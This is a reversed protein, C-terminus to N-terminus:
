TAMPCFVIAKASQSNTRARLRGGGGPTQALGGPHGTEARHPGREQLGRRSDGGRPPYPDERLIRISAEGYTRLIKESLHLPVDYQRLFFCSRRSKARARGARSSPKSSRRAWGPSKRSASPTTTSFKSPNEGRLAGRNAQRTCARHEERHGFGPVKRNGRNDHADISPRTRRSVPPRVQSPGEMGGEFRVREGERISSLYGVVAM